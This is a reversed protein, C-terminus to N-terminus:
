PPPRLRAGAYSLLRSEDVLAPDFLLGQETGDDTRIKLVRTGAVGGDKVYVSSVKAWGVSVGPLQHVSDTDLRFKRRTFSVYDRRAKWIAWACLTCGFAILGLLAWGRGGTQFAQLTNIAVFAPFFLIVFGCARRLFRRAADPLEWEIPESDVTM